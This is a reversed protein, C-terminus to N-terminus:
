ARGAEQPPRGKLWQKLLDDPHKQLRDWLEKARDFVQKVPGPYNASNEGYTRVIHKLLNYCMACQGSAILNTLQDDDEFWLITPVATARDAITKMPESPSLWESTKERRTNTGLGYILNS